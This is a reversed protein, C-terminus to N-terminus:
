LADAANSAYAPRLVRQPLLLIRSSGAAYSTTLDFNRSSCRDGSCISPLSFSSPDATEMLSVVIYRAM